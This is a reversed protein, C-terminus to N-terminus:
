SNKIGEITVSEVQAGLIKAVEQVTPNSVAVKRAEAMFNRGAGPSKPAASAAAGATEVVQSGQFKGGSVKQILEDLEDKLIKEGLQKTAFHGKPYKIILVGNSLEKSEACQLLAHLSPRRKKIEALLDAASHITATGIAASAESPKIPTSPRAATTARPSFSPSAPTFSPTPQPAPSATPRPQPAAGYHPPPTLAQAPGTSPAAVTARLAPSNAFSLIRAVRLLTTEFTFRPIESKKLREQGTWLVEYLLDLQDVSWKEFAKLAKSKHDAAFEQALIESQPAAKWILLARTWAILREILRHLDKGSDYLDASAKLLKDVNQTAIDALMQLETELGVTGLFTEVIEPSIESSGSLLVLQDLFTQADRLGGDSAAAIRELVDRQASIKENKCIMTLNEVVELDTLRKLQLRQVRSLITAPIKEPETTAFLFLVHLPPEELTKLLANFAANSLMHVEDIIYVSRKSINPKYAVGEIIRRVDDVGTHSAGDIEILDMSRGSLYALCSECQDCPREALKDSLCSAARAFIRACTTKGVGRPGLFLYAPAIRDAKLAELLNKIVLAQGRVEALKQPRYKRALNLKPHPSGSGM